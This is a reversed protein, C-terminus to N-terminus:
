LLRALYLPSSSLLPPLPPPFWFATPSSHHTTPTEVYGQSVAEGYLWPRVPQESATVKTTNLNPCWLEVSLKSRYKEQRALEGLPLPQLGWSRFLARTHNYVEKMPPNAYEDTSLPICGTLLALQNGLSAAEVVAAKKFTVRHFNSLEGNTDGLLATLTPFHRDMYGRSVSDMELILVNPPRQLQQSPPPPTVTNEHAKLARKSRDIVDTKSKTWLFVDVPAIWDKEHTVNCQVLAVEDESNLRHEGAACPSWGHSTTSCRCNRGEVRLVTNKQTVRSMKTEQHCGEFRPRGTLPIDGYFSLM